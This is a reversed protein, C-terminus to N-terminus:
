VRAIRSKRAPQSSKSTKVDDGAASGALNLTHGEGEHVHEPKKASSAARESFHICVKSPSQVRVKGRNDPTEFEALAAREQEHLHLALALDDSLAPTPASTDALASTEVSLLALAFDSDASGTRTPRHCSLRPLLACPLSARLLIAASRRSPPSRASLGARPARRAAARRKSLLV